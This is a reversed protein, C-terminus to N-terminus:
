VKDEARRALRVGAKEPNLKALADRLFQPIPVGLAAANELISLVEVYVYFGALAPALPADVGPILRQVYFALGVLVLEGGKKLAGIYAIDSTLKKQTFARLGGTIMDFVIVVLLVQYVADLHNWYGSVFAAVLAIWQIVKSM